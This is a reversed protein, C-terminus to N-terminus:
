ISWDHSDQSELQLTVPLPALNEGFFQAVQAPTLATLKDYVEKAQQWFHTCEARETESPQPSAIFAWEKIRAEASAPWVGAARESTAAPHGQSTQDFFLAPKGSRSAVRIFKTPLPPKPIKGEILADLWDQHAWYSAKDDECFSLVPAYYGACAVSAFPVILRSM